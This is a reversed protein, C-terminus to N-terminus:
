SHDPGGLLANVRRRLEPVVETEFWPHRRFWNLNRPSPHPLPLYEPLYEQWTAVTEALSAKTRDGLYFAQAHSGILLTLRVEKLAARLTPHWKPACEPRTPCDGGRGPLKGPYCLGTPIIAILREDYFRERDLQLWSRLRDGSPDNWPVGTEHVKRGPAQGVVLLKASLSARMVPRPGLPLMDACLRCAKVEALLREWADQTM